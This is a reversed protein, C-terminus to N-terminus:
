KFCNQFKFMNPDYEKGVGLGDLDEGGGYVGLKLNKRFIVFGGFCLFFFYCFLICEFSPFVLSYRFLLVVFFFFFISEIIHQYSSRFLLGARFYNIHGTDSVLSFMNKMEWFTCIVTGNNFKVRTALNENM